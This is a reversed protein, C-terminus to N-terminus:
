PAVVKVRFFFDDDGAPHWVDEGEGGLFVAGELQYEIGDLTNTKNWTVVPFGYEDMELRCELVDRADRPDTGAVYEEWNRRGDGDTDEDGLQTYGATDARSGLGTERFWSEPVAVPNESSPPWWKVNSLWAGCSSDDYAANDVAYEVRFTATGSAPVTEDVDMEKTTGDTYNYGHSWIPEGDKLIRIRNGSFRSVGKVSFAFHGGGGVRMDVWSTGAGGLEGSRITRAGAAADERWGASGGTSWVVGDTGMLSHFLKPEVIECPGSWGDAGWAAATLVESEALQVPGTYIRGNEPTPASGDTTYYVTGGGDPLALEVMVPFESVLAAATAEPRGPVERGLFGALCRILTAETGEYTKGGIVDGDRVRVSAKANDQGDVIVLNPVEYGGSIGLERRKAWFYAEARDTVAFRTADASVLYVRNAKAWALFRRGNAVEDFEKGCPSQTNSGLALILRGDKAQSAAVAGPADTTWEGPEVDHKDEFFGNAVMSPELGPEVCIARVELTERITFPRKYLHAEDADPDTGDLTYYLKGRNKSNNKLTVTLERQFPTATDLTEGTAPLIEPKPSLAGLRVEDLWVGNFTGTYYLNPRFEFTVTQRGGPLEVEVPRWSPSHTDATDEYLSEEAASTKVRFASGTAKRAAYWFSLKSGAECELEVELKGAKGSAQSGGSLTITDACSQAADQGDHTEAIQYTWAGTAGTKWAWQEADVAEALEGKGYSASYPLGKVGALAAVAKITTRSTLEIPGEYLESEQTPESGDLTYRIPMGEVEPTLTVELKEGFLTGDPPSFEVECFDGVLRPRFGIVDPATERLVRANDATGAVGTAEGDFSKSPSSFYPIEEYREGERKTEYAMITCKKGTELYHGHAYPAIEDHAPSNEQETSHQAGMNHGMEHTMTDGVAVARVANANYANGAFSGVRGRYSAGLTNGLGTTGNATGTDILVCVLDAGCLERRQKVANWAGSGGAACSLAANLDRKADEVGMVDVLRFKFTGTLGSNALARNARQVARESFNTMGGRGRVWQAAGRDYAVLLDVTNDAGGARAMRADGGDFTGSEWDGAEDGDGCEPAGGCSRGAMAARDWEEVVLEEGDGFVVYVRGRVMDEIETEIRGEQELVTAGCAAVDGEVGCLYVRSGLCSPMREEVSLRVSVDDFLQLELADGSELRAGLSGVAATAVRARRLLGDEGATVAAARVTGTRGGGGGTYDVTFTTGWATGCAVLAVALGLAKAKTKM